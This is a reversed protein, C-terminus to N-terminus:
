PWFRSLFSPSAETELIPANQGTLCGANQIRAFVRGVLKPNGDPGEVVENCVLLQSELLDALPHQNVAFFQLAEGSAVM